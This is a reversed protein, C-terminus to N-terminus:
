KAKSYNEALYNVIKKADDAPVPAGYTKIMKDVTSEWQRRSPTPQGTIYDLSHCIVCYREVLDLGPAQKMETKVVPLKIMRRTEEPYSYDACVLLSGIAAISLVALSRKM